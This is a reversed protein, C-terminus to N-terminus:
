QGFVPWRHGNKCVAVFQEPAGPLVVSPLKVRSGFMTNEYHVVDWMAGLDEGGIPCIHHFVPSRLYRAHAESVPVDSSLNWLYLPDMFDTIPRVGSVIEEALAPSEELQKQVQEGTALAEPADAALISRVQDRFAADNRLLTLLEQSASIQTPRPANPQSGAVINQKRDEGIRAVILQGAATGASSAAATAFVKVLGVAAAILPAWVFPM